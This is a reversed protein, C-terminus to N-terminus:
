VRRDRVLDFIGSTIHTGAAAADFDAQAVARDTVDFAVAAMRHVAAHKAGLTRGADHLVIRRRPQLLREQARALAAFAFKALDLPFLREADGDAPEALNAPAVRLFEGKEGAAILRLREGAPPRRLKARRIVGGM